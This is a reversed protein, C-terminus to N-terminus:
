NEKKQFYDDVKIDFKFMKSKIQSIAINTNQLLYNCDKNNLNEILIYLEKKIDKIRIFKYKTNKILNYFYNKPKLEEDDTYNSVKLIKILAFNLRNGYRKFPPNFISLIKKNQYLKELIKKIIETKIYDVEGGYNRFDTILNVLESEKENEIYEKNGIGLILWNLNINYNSNLIVAEHIKLPRGNNEVSNYSSKSLDLKKGLQEQTMKHEIRFKKLRQIIDKM